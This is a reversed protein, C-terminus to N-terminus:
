KNTSNFKKDFTQLVVSARAQSEAISNADTETQGFGLPARASSENSSTFRELNYNTDNPIGHFTSTQAGRAANDGSGNYVAHRSSM